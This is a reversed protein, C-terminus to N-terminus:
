SAWRVECGMRGEEVVIDWVLMGEGGRGEGRGCRMSLALTPSFDMAGTIYGDLMEFMCACAECELGALHFSAASSRYFYVDGRIGVMVPSMMM